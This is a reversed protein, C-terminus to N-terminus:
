GLAKTRHPMQKQNKRRSATFGFLGTALLAISTPEAVTVAIPIAPGYSVDLKANFMYTYEQDFTTDGLPDYLSGGVSYTGGAAANLIVLDAASFAFTTFALNTALDTTYLLNGGALGAFSFETANFFQLTPNHSLADKGNGYMSFVANTIAEGALPSEIIFTSFGRIQQNEYGTFSSGLFGYTLTTGYYADGNAAIWGQTTADIAVSSAMTQHASILALTTTAIVKLYKNM